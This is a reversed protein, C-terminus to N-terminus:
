TRPALLDRTLELFADYDIPKAVTATAGVYKATRLYDRGEAIYGSIAVIKLGADLKRLLAITEIGEKDPMVLDTVVLDPKFAGALDVGLAGNEATRVEHGEDKLLVSLVDRIGAEDDIVLIRAM